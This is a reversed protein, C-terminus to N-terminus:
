LRTKIMDFPMSVVTGVTVAVATSVWRNIASPGFFFYSNEKVLDYISTMSSCIAALKCANATAGRFLAGEEQVKYLGDFFNRYNRKGAQPYLEDAQMRTFIIEFPNTVLGATAGGAIGAAVFYDARALRRPDPNIWDYFYLFGWVRATTYAFTRIFFADFRYYYFNSQSILVIFLVKQTWRRILSNRGHNVYSVM